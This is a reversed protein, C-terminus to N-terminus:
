GLHVIIARSGPALSALMATGTSVEGLNMLAIAHISRLHNRVARRDGMRVRAFGPRLELVRPRITGTYPAMRGVLISFLAKGGPLPALRRWRRLIASEM